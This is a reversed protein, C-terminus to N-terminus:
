VQGVTTSQQFGLLFAQRTLDAIVRAIETRVFDRSQIGSPCGVLQLLCGGLLISIMWKRTKHMFVVKQAQAVTNDIGVSKRRADAADAIVCFAGGIRVPM